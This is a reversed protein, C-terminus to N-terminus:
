AALSLLDNGGSQHRYVALDDSFEPGLGIRVNIVDAYIALQKLARLAVNIEQHVLGLSVDGSKVVGFV